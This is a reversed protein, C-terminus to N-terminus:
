HYHDDYDDNDEHHSFDQENKTQTHQVTTQINKPQIHENDNVTLMFYTRLTVLFVVFFYCIREDDVHTKLLGM